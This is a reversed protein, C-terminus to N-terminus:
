ESRLVAAPNSAFVPSNANEITAASASLGAHKECSKTTVSFYSDRTDRTDRVQRRLACPIEYLMRKTQITNTVAHVAVDGGWGVM